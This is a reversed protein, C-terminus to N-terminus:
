VSEGGVRHGCRDPARANVLGWGSLLAWATMSCTIASRFPLASACRAVDCVSTVVSSVSSEASDSDRIRVTSARDPQM